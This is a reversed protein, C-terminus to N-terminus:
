PQDAGNRPEPPPAVLEDRVYRRFAKMWPVRGMTRSEELFRAAEALSLKPFSVSIETRQYAGNELRHFELGNDYRWVEDVGLAAHIAMRDLSSSTDNVEIALSPAPDIALDLERRGLMAAAKDRLWFCRDPEVGKGLDVRRHTTSGGAECAIELEESLIDVMLGLFDAVVEHPHSPVMVEMVGRNYNVFIRREGIIRLMAEYDSWSVDRMVISPVDDAVAIAALTRTEM